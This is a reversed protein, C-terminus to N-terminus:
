HDCEAEQVIEDQRPSAASDQDTLDQAVLDQDATVEALIQRMYNLSQRAIFEAGPKYDFVEVSIWGSYGSELLAKM